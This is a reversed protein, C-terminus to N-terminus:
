PSLQWVTGYSYTGCGSTAGYLNGSSDLALSGGAPFERFRLYDLDEYHWGDSAYWAKFIYSDHTDGYDPSKYRGSGRFM